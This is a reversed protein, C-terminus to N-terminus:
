LTTPFEGPRFPPEFGKGEVIIDRISFIQLAGCEFSRSLHWEVPMHGQDSTGAPVLKIALIDIIVVDAAGEVTTTHAQCRAGPCIETNLDSM